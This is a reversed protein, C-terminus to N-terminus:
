NWIEIKIFPSEKKNSQLEHSYLKGKSSSYCYFRTIKQNIFPTCFAKQRSTGESILWIEDM